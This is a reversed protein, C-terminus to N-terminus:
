PAAGPATDGRWEDVVERAEGTVLRGDSLGPIAAQGLDARCTVRVRVTSGPALSGIDAHVTLPACSLGAEALAKEAANHAAAQAATPDRQLTAARAAQHAVDNVRIRADVGRHIVVAVVVLLLILLPAVLTTEVAVSGTDDRWWARWRDRRTM